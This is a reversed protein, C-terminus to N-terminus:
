PTKGNDIEISEIVRQAAVKGNKDDAQWAVLVQYFIMGEAFGTNIFEVDVGDKKFTGKQLFGPIDNKLFPDETYNFATVGPQMKMESVSGNAAGQLSVSGVEPKYRVSNIMVSFGSGASHTYVDMKEILQRLNDPISLDSKELKFPTEVTLGFDGYSEKVWEQNLIEKSTKQSKFFKVIAEGGFQGLAYFIAFAVTFGIWYKLSKPRTKVKVPITNIEEESVCVLRKYDDFSRGPNKKKWDPFNNDLKKNCSPCFVLYESKVENFHGCDTCKLYHM